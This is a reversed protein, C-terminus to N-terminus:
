MNWLVIIPKDKEIETRTVTKQLVNYKNKTKLMLDSDVVNKLLVVGQDKLIENYTKLM